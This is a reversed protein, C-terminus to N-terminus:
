GIFKEAAKVANEVCLDCPCLVKGTKVGKLDACTVAGCSAKFESLIKRAAAANRRGSILGDAMVAGVLAGCSGEMTGMGSGFGAGLAILQEQSLGLEKEFSLLVAQCCNCGSHKYQLALDTRNM